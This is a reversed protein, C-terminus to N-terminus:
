SIIVVDSASLPYNSKGDIMGVFSGGRNPPPESVTGTDGHKVKPHCYTARTVKFRTGKKLKRWNAM